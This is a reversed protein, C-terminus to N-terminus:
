GRVEREIIELAKGKFVRFVFPVELDLEIAKPLIGIAGQVKLGKIHFEIRADREGVWNMKPEYDAFRARYSEFARIAVEKALPLDLDHPIQHKMPPKKVLSRLVQAIRSCGEENWLAACPNSM